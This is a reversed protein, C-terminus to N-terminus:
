TNEAHDDNAGEPLVYGVVVLFIVNYTNYTNKPSPDSLSPSM